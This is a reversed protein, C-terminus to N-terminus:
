NSFDELLSLLNEYGAVEIGIELLERDYKRLASADIETFRQPQADSEVVLNGDVNRVTFVAQPTEIAAIDAQLEAASAAAAALGTILAIATACAAIATKKM